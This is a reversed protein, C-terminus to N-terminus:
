FSRSSLATYANTDRPYGLYQYNQVRATEGLVFFVLTPKQTAQRVASPKQQADQGIEQYVMPETFYRQKVLGFSSYLFHTPIIMKQTLQQQTWRVLLESLLAWRDRWDRCRFGAHIAGKEDFFAPM